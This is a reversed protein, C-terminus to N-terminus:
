QKPHIKHLSKHISECEEKSIFDLAHSEGGNEYWSISHYGREDITHKLIKPAPKTCSIIVVCTLLLIKKLTNTKLPKCYLLLSPRKWGLRLAERLL